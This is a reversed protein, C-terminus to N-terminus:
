PPPVPRGIMAPRRHGAARTVDIRGSSAPPKAPSLLEEAPMAVPAMLAQHDLAAFADVVKPDFARGSEACIENVARELPWAEKYPREHTLADFVDALAVIRGEIPIAEGELGSVYGRGDWREHHTLAITEAMQLLASDSGALLRAGLVVHRKMTQFEDQTLRGPKLLLADSIGIKGVDHLPAAVGLLDVQSRPLALQEALRAATRGVRRTHEGTDDDRYEAALALRQVVELRARDLAETRERVRHELLEGHRRLDKQLRRTHLLNAVRLRVEDADFPKTLFDRAGVALARRKTEVSVDATLVLIPVPSTSMTWPVLLSMVEFGDPPPMHLDLMILDPEAEACLAVVESSDMTTTVDEFGWRTLLSELIEVNAREDDVVLIRSDRLVDPNM